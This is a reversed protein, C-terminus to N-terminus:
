ALGRLTLYPTGDSLVGMRIGDAEVEKVSFLNIQGTRTEATTAPIVIIKDEM